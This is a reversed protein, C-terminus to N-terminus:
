KMKKLSLDKMFDTKLVRHVSNTHNTVVTSEDNNMINKLFEFM